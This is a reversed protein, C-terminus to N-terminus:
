VLIWSLTMSTQALPVHADQAMAPLLLVSSAPPVSPAIGSKMEPDTTHTVLVPASTAWCFLIQLSWNIGALKLTGVYDPDLIATDRVPEDFPGYKAILTACEDAPMPGAFMQAPQLFQPHWWQMSNVPPPRNSAKRIALNVEGLFSQIESMQSLRETAAITLWEYMYEFM